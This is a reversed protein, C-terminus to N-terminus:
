KKLYNKQKQKGREKEGKDVEEEMEENKGTPNQFNKNSKNSITGCGQVSIRLEVNGDKEGHKLKSLKQQRIKLNVSKTRPETSDASSSM